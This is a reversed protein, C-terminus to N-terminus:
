TGNAEDVTAIAITRAHAAIVCAIWTCRTSPANTADIKIARLSSRSLDPRSARRWTPIASKTGKKKAYVPM